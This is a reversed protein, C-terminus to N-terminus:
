NDILSHSLLVNKNRIIDKSISKVTNLRSFLKIYRTKQADAM